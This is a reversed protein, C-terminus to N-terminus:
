FNISKLEIVVFSSDPKYYTLNVFGLEENFLYKCKFQGLEEIYNTNEGELIWCRYNKNAFNYTTTDVAHLYRTIIKGELIGDKYDKYKIVHLEGRSEYTLYGPNGSAPFPLIETFSLFLERPPHISIQNNEEDALTIESEIVKGNRKYDWIIRIQNFFNKKGSSDVKLILTLSDNVNGLKDYDVASYTWERGVKLIKNDSPSKSASPSKCASFLFLSVIFFIQLYNVVKKM